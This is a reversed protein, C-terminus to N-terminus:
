AITEWESDPDGVKRYQLTAQETPRDGTANGLVRLLFPTATAITIDVDQDALPTNSGEDADDQYFRFGEQEISFLLEETFAAASVDQQTGPVASWEAADSGGGSGIVQYIFSYPFVFTGEDETIETFAGNPTVTGSDGDGCILVGLIMGGGALTVATGVGGCDPDDSADEAAADADVDTLECLVGAYDSNSTGPNCRVDISGSGTVEASTVLTFHSGDNGGYIPRTITFAEYAFAGVTATGADKSMYSDGSPDFPTAFDGDDYGAALHVLRNGITVDEGASIVFGGTIGSAEYTIPTQDFSIAM